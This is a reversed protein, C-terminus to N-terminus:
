RQFVWTDMTSGFQSKLLDLSVTLPLPDYESYKKMLTTEAYRWPVDRSVTRDDFGDTKVKITSSSQCIAVIERALDPLTIPEEGSVNVISGSPAHKAINIIHAAADSSYLYSRPHNHNGYVNLTQNYLAQHMFRPIVFQRVQRPGFTNFVRVVTTRMGTLSLVDEENQMKSRAYVNNARLQSTESLRVGPEHAGYVESSSLMVFHKVGAQQAAQIVSRTGEVNVRHCMAPNKETFEVGLMAACHYVTDCGMMHKTLTETDEIGIISTAAVGRLDCGKTKQSKAILRLNIASGICGAIGTIYNTM